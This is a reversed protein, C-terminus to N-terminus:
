NNGAQARREDRQARAEAIRDEDYGLVHLDLEDNDGSHIRAMKEARLTRAENIRDEDYGLAHLDLGENDQANIRAMKEEDQDAM